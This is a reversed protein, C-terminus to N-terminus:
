RKAAQGPTLAIKSKSVWPPASDITQRLILNLQAAHHQVHRMVYLFLAFLTMDRRAFGCPQRAREDTLAAIAARCKKRCHDLYRRLEDQTYARPPMAGGPDLESLTYPDPPAFEQKPDSSYYDLYFITHYALYWYEPRRGRDRWIEEPCATISNELTDIAAGFQEWIGTKWASEM